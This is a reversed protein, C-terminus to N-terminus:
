LGNGKAALAEGFILDERTTIKINIYSGDVIFVPKGLRMVLSADDTGSFGDDRARRHAEMILARSFVQPTQVAVLTDRRLNEQLTGDAPSIRSITDKVPVGALVAGKQRAAELSNRITEPTIFPRAGDHVMVPDCDEPVHQLGLWVSEQRTAGGAIVTVTAQLSVRSVIEERCRNEEGPFVPIIIHAIEAVAGLAKLTHTLLPRGLLEIYPKKHSCHMREGTGASPIIACVKM